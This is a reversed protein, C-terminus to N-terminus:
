RGSLTKTTPAAGQAARTTQALVPTASRATPPNFLGTRASYAELIEAETRASDHEIDYWDYHLLWHNGIVLGRIQDGTLGVGIADTRRLVGEQKRATM